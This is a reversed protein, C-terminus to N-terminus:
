VSNLEINFTKSLINIIDKTVEEIPKEANLSHVRNPHRAAIKKFGDRVRKHFSLEMNEFRTNDTNTEKDRNLSRKLGIEAPIDLILTLDPYTEGLTLSHLDRILTRSVGKGYGQYVITSDSFRDSIVWSGDELAPQIKRMWHERRAAYMILTESIPDWRNQEGSVLLERLEESGTSGGPERTLVVKKGKSEIYKKISEIQTSKGAGEGGELSIFRGILKQNKKTV